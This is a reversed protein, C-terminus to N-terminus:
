TKVVVIKWSKLGVSAAARIIEASAPITSTKLGNARRFRIPVARESIAIRTSAMAVDPHVISQMRDTVGARMGADSVM